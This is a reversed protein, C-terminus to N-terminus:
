YLTLVVNEYPLICKLSAEHNTRPSTTWSSGASTSSRRQCTPASPSMRFIFVTSSFKHSYCKIRLTSPQFRNHRGLLTLTLYLLERSQDPDCRYTQALNLKVDYWTRVTYRQISRYVHYLEALHQFHEFKKLMEDRQEEDEAEFLCLFLLIILVDPKVSFVSNHNYTDTCQPCRRGRAIDLCQM